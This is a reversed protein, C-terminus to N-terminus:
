LGTNTLYQAGVLLNGMELKSHCFSDTKAHAQSSLIAAIKNPLHTLLLSRWQMITFSGKTLLDAKEENHERVSSLHSSRFFTKGSALGFHVGNHGLNPSRGKMIMKIVATTLLKESQLWILPQADQLDEAFSTDLLLLRSATRLKVELLAINVTTKHSGSTASLSRSDKTAHTPGTPSREPWRTYRESLALLPWADSCM